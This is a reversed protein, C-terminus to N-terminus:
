VVVEGPRQGNSPGPVARRHGSWRRSLAGVTGDGDHRRCATAASTDADSPRRRTTLPAARGPAGPDARGPPPQLAPHRHLSRQVCHRVGREARRGAAPELGCLDPDRRAPVLPRARSPTDLAFREIGRGATPPLHRKSYGGSFTGAEPVRDKWRAVHLRQEYFRGDREFRRPRLLRRHGTLAQDSLHAAVSGTGIFIVLWAAANIVVIWGSSLHLFPM